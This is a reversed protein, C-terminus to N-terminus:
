QLQKRRVYSLIEDVPRADFNDIAVTHTKGFRNDSQIQIEVDGTKMPYVVFDQPKRMGEFQGDFSATGAFNKRFNSLIQKNSPIFAM